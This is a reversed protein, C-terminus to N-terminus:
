VSTVIALASPTLLAAGVGQLARSAVLFAPSPALGSALSAATFLALGAVFTRRRGFVDGLRGGVLLLGGTCVVYATVVWQLDDPRFDLAAGISPLAVNVITIDLIVMFQAVCVLALTTWSRRAPQAPHDHHSAASTM